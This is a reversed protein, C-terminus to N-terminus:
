RCASATARRVPSNPRARCSGAKLAFFRGTCARSLARFLKGSAPNRAPSPPQLARQGDVRAAGPDGRPGGVRGAVLASIWVGAVALADGPGSQAVTEGVPASSAGPAGVAAGDTPGGM